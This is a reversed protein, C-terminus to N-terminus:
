KQDTVDLQRLEDGLAQRDRDAARLRARERYAQRNVRLGRLADAESRARHPDPTYRTAEGGGARLLERDLQGLLGLALESVDALDRDLHRQGALVRGAVRRPLRL